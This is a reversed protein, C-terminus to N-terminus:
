VNLYSVLMRYICGMPRNMEGIPNKMIAQCYVERVM